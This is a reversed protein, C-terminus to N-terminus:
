AAKKGRRPAASSSTDSKGSEEGCTCGTGEACGECCYAEDGQRYGQTNGWDKEDMGCTPCTREEMEPEISSGKTENPNM